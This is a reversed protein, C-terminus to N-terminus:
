RSTPAALTAASAPRRVHGARAYAEPGDNSFVVRFGYMAFKSRDNGIPVGRMQASDPLLQLFLSGEDTYQVTGVESLADDTARDVIHEGGARESRRPVFVGAKVTQQLELLSPLRGGAWHTFRLASTFDVWVPNEPHRDEKPWRSRPQFTPHDALFRDFQENTVLEKMVRFAPLYLSEEGPPHSSADVSATSELLEPRPTAPEVVIEEGWIKNVTFQFERTIRASGPACSQWLYLGPALTRAMACPQFVIALESPVDTRVTLRYLATSDGGSEPYRVTGRRRAADNFHYEEALREDREFLQQYLYTNLLAGSEQSERVDRDYMWGARRSWAMVVEQVAPGVRWGLLGRLWGADFAEARTELDALPPHTKVLQSIDVFSDPRITSLEALLESRSEWTTYSWSGAAVAVTVACVLAAIRLSHRHRRSWLRLVKLLSPAVIAIPRNELIAHLDGAMAGMDPYRDEPERELAHHIVRHLDTPAAPQAERLPRPRCREIADLTKRRQGGDFPNELAVLEYALTAFSFQDSRSDAGSRGDAVQEPAVYAATGVLQQTLHTRSDDDAEEDHALGFDILRPRREADLLVNGPKIDRHLVGRDHCYALTDAIRALCEVRTRYSRFYETLARLAEGDAGEPIEGRLAALVRDLSPGPLYEMAILARHGAQGIEYVKVIGPHDLRAVSRAENLVSAGDKGPVSVVGDLVKLAVNRALKPDYALFVQGLGGRGLERLIRFRGLTMPAAPEDDLRLESGLDGLEEWLQIRAKLAPASEGARGLLEARVDRGEAIARLFEDFLRAVLGGDGESM